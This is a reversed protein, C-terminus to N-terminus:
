NSGPLLMTGAGGLLSWLGAMAAAAGAARGVWRARPALKELLVFIMLGAIWLLNMVGGIFLLLMLLWCCGVCYLGHRFGLRVAGAAGAPFGGHQQIFALPARCQALCADKWPLWQYIGALILVVAGVRRDQIRMAPTLMATSELLWQALTAVTAFAAWAALYGALFWGASAFRQGRTAAQRAVGMYILVMPAASPIMMGIMMVFWMVFLYTALTATWPAFGPSMMQMHSMRMGAMEPMAMAAMRAAERLVWSWAIAAILILAVLAIVRERRLASALAADGSL